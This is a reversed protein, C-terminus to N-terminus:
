RAAARLTARFACGSTLIEIDAAQRWICCRGCVGVCFRADYGGSSPWPDSVPVLCRPRHRTAPRCLVRQAAKWLRPSFMDMESSQPSVGAVPSSVASSSLSEAAFALGLLTPVAPM